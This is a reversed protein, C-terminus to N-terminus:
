TSNTVWECHRWQVLSGSSLPPTLKSFIRLSLFYLQKLVQFGGVMIGVMSLHVLKHHNSKAKCLFHNHFVLFSWGISVPPSQPELCSKGGYNKPSKGGSRVHIKKLLQPEFDQMKSSKPCGFDAGLLQSFEPFFLIKQPLWKYPSQVLGSYYPDRHVLCYKM